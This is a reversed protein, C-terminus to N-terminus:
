YIRRRHPTSNQFYEVVFQEDPFRTEMDRNLEHIASGEFAAAGQIDGAEKKRIALVMDRLADQNEILVNDTDALAPIFALKAVVSIFPLPHHLHGFGDLKMVTYEPTQESPQYVSLPLLNGNNDDQQCTIYGNSLDKVVRDIRGFQVSTTASSAMPYTQGPPVNLVLTAQASNGSGDVGFFSVNIGVDLVNNSTARVYMPKTPNIQSTVPTTGINYAVRKHHHRWNSSNGGIFDDFWHRFEDNWPVFQYWFNKVEAHYRENVALISEVERPCILVPHPSWAVTLIMPQVTAWWNGRIILQRTADNVYNVFDPKTTAIGCSRGVPGLKVQGLTLLM